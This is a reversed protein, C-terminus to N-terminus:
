DMTDFDDDATVNILLIMFAVGIITLIVGDVTINNEIFIEIWGM